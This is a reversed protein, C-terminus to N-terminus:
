PTNFTSLPINWASPLLNVSFNYSSLSVSLCYSLCHCPLSLLLIALDTSALLFVSSDKALHSSIPEIHECMQRLLQLRMDFRQLLIEVIHKGGDVLKRM